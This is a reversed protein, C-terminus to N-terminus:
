ANQEQPEEKTEESVMSGEELADENDEESSEEVTEPVESPEETEDSKGEDIASHVPSQMKFYLYRAVAYTVFSIAFGATVDSLFHAGLVMRSFAMTITYLAAVFALFGEKEKWNPFVEGLACFVFLAGASATHGSPFSHHGHLSFGNLHYWPSFILDDDVVMERYRPRGWIFKMGNVILIDAIVCVISAFILFIALDKRRDAKVKSMLFLTLPTFVLAAAAGVTCNLWFVALVTENIAMFGYLFYAVATIAACLIKKLLPYRKKEDIVFFLLAFTAAFIFFPPFIGVGELVQAMVINPSYLREALSLDFLGGLTLLVAIICFVVVYRIKRAKTMM